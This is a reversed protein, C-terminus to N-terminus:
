PLLLGVIASLRIAPRDSWEGAPSRQSLSAGTSGRPFNLGGETDGSGLLKMDRGGSFTGAEFLAIVSLPNTATPDTGM